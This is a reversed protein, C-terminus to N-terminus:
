WSVLEGVRLYVLVGVYWCVLVVACPCVSVGDSCCELVWQYVGECESACVRASASVCECLCVSACVRVRM